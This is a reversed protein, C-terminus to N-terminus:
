GNHAFYQAQPQFLCVYLLILDLVIFYTSYYLCIDLMTVLSFFFILEEQLHQLPLSMQYSNSSHTSTQQFLTM